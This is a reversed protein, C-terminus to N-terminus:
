LNVLLLLLCLCWTTDGFINDNCKKCGANIKMSIFLIIYLLYNIQKCMKLSKLQNLIFKNQM